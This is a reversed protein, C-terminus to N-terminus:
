SFTYLDIADIVDILDIEYYDLNAPLDIYRLTDRISCSNASIALSQSSSQGNNPLGCSAAGAYWLTPAPESKRWVLGVRRGINRRGV